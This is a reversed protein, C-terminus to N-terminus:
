REEGAEKITAGAKASAGAAVKKEHFLAQAAKTDSVLKAV